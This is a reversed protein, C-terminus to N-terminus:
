VTKDQNRNDKWKKPNKWKQWSERLRILEIEEYFNWFYLIFPFLSILAMKVLLRIILTPPNTYFSLAFIIIGVLIIKFVKLIEYPIFYYHQAAKYIIIFFLLQATLTALAAGVSQWIPILFINFILNIIAMGSIIASIINTRKSIHLGTLSVDKLMGFFIAFSLMPIVTHAEWYDRNKAILHILEKGFISIVLVFLMLGFSFYTMIKSYFRKCDPDNIKKFIMPTIALMVSSVIFVKLTNSVKFGLSFIGVYYLTSLFKLCFRSTITFIAGSIEAFILPFSYSLMDKLTQKEFKFDINQWIFKSITIFLISYGILQAEYIAELSKNLFAIFYITLTLTVLLRFLNSMSYLLPKEQIRILTLCFQAIIQLGTSLFMIKLLYSYDSNDFLYFSLPQAFIVLGSIMLASVFSIFSLSTFFMTKQNNIYTQDWYLRLLAASIRFGFVAILLQASIELIALIAYDEVSLHQTYLPILIFGVLKTSLNGFSYILIDKLSTKIDKLLSM